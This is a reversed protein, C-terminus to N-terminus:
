KGKLGSKGLIEEPTSTVKVLLDNPFVITTNIGNDFITEVRELNVFIINGNENLMKVFQMQKIREKLYGM